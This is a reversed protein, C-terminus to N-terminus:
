GWCLYQEWVLRGTSM